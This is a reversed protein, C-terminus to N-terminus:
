FKLQERKVRRTGIHDTGYKEHILIYSRAPPCFREKTGDPHAIMVEEGNTEAWWGVWFPHTSGWDFTRDVRWNPPVKFRPKVHVATQWLDSFSGGV